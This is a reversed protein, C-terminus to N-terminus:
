RLDVYDSEPTARAKALAKKARASLEQEESVAHKLFAVDKRLEAVEDHLKKSTM